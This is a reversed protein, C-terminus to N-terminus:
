AVNDGFEWEAVIIYGMPSQQPDEDVLVLM